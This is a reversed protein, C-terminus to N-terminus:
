KIVIRRAYEQLLNIKIYYIQMVLDNFKTRIALFIFKNVRNIKTYESTTQTINFFSSFLVDKDARIFLEVVM